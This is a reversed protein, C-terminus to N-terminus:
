QDVQAFWIHEMSLMVSYNIQSTLGLIGGGLQNCFEDIFRKKLLGLFSDITFLYGEQCLEYDTNKVNVSEFRPEM